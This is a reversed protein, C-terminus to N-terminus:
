RGALDLAGNQLGYRVQQPQLTGDGRGYYIGANNGLVNSVVVDAKGDGDFDAAAIAWESLYSGVAEGAYTQIQGFKGKGSNLLVTTSEPAFVSIDDGGNNSTALDLDGDADLDAAVIELPGQGVTYMAPTAFKAGGTGLLVSITKSSGYVGNHVTALDIKGDGSLDRAIIMGPFEGVPLITAAGFSGKGSNLYVAIQESYQAAALDLDGDGDLDAVAVYDNRATGPFVRPAGFQGKGDNLSTVIPGVPESYQNLDWVLDDWGDGNIDAPQVHGVHGDSTLGSEVLQGTKFAGKRRNTMIQVYGIGDFPDNISLALDPDDDHDFDTAEVSDVPVATEALAPAGFAFHARQLHIGGTETGGEAVVIDAKGDGDLNAIAADHPTFGSSFRLATFTGKGGNRLISMDGTASSGATPLVVDADGDGDLDGSAVDWASFGTVYEDQGFSLGGRNLMVIQHDTGIFGVVLDPKGDGNFDDSVVSPDGVEALTIETARTFKAAGNNSWIQFSSKVTDPDDRAIALDIDGDRDFDGSTIGRPHKGVTYQREAGFTGDGKNLVVSMVQEFIGSSM